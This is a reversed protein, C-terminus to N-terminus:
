EILLITQLIKYECKIYFTWEQMGNWASKQVTIKLRNKLCNKKEDIVYIYYLLDSYFLIEDIFNYNNNRSWKIVAM